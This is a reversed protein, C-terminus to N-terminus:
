RLDHRAPVRARTSTSAGGAGSCRASAPTDTSGESDCVKGPPVIDLATVHRAEYGGASADDGCVELGRARLGRALLVIRAVEEEHRDLVAL